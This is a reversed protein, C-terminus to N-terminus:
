LFTDKKSSELQVEYKKKLINFDTKDSYFTEDIVNANKFAERREYCTSCLGCQIKKGNYCSYTQAMNVNLREGISVIEAKNIGVFPSVINVHNYTGYAMAENMSEIFTQRCDPYIAHDGAHNGIAVKKCDNSEAIGCAIALMIGNRFPVVTKKMTNEEYHGLPIEEGAMLLNSKLHKSINSIDIRISKLNLIECNKLVMKYEEENHKSGYNFSVPIVEYKQNLHHLLVTSDLGGSYILVIKEKM